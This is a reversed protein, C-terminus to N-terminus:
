GVKLLVRELDISSYDNKLPSLDPIKIGSLKELFNEQIVKLNEELFIFKKSGKGKARWEWFSVYLSM